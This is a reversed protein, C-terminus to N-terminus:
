ASEARQDFQGPLYEIAFVIGDTKPLEKYTDDLQPESFVTSVCECFLTEDIGEVDYRNFLRLSNISKIGLLERLESLIGKAEVAFPAKKEAYIRYVSM